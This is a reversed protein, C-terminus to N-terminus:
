LAVKKGDRVYIGRTTPSQIRRGQLDYLTGNLADGADVEDEIADGVYLRMLTRARAADSTAKGYIPLYFYLDESTYSATQAFMGEGVWLAPTVDTALHWDAANSKASSVAYFGAYNKHDVKTWISNPLSDALTQLGDYYLWLEKPLQMKYEVASATFNYDDDYAMEYPKYESVLYPIGFCNWGMDEAATLAGSGDTPENNHQTLTVLQATSLINGEADTLPHENYIYDRMTTGKGTFRYVTDHSCTFFVGQCAETAGDVDYIREWCPSNVSMIQYRASARTQGNYTYATTRVDPTLTLVRTTADYSYTAPGHSDDTAYNYDMDYPLAVISGAANINREVAVYAAKISQGHGYLSAGRKVLLYAPILDHAEAILNSNELLYVVSGEHPYYNGGYDLSDTNTFVTQGVTDNGVCWTEFAGRDLVDTTAKASRTNLVRPNALLDVDTAYNIFQVLNATAADLTMPNISDCRDINLSHETLQYNLNADSVAYNFKSLTNEDAPHGAYNFISYWLHSGQKNDAAEDYRCNGAADSTRGEVTLNVGYGTAGLNLVYNTSAVANDRFLVEYILANNVNAVNVNTAGSANNDAVLIHSVAVAPIVGDVSSTPNIDLVPSLVAGLPNNETVSSIAVGDIRTPVEASFTNKEGTTVSSLVTRKTSPGVLGPRNNVVTAVDEHLHPYLYEGTEEDITYRVSDTVNTPDISGFINVGSRLTIGDFQTDNDGKVFVYAENLDDATPANTASYIAALDIANQLNESNMTQGWGTGDRNETQTPDVYIVRLLPQPYEIAGVEISQPIVRPQDLFDLETTPIWALDFVQDAYITTDGKNVLRVSPRLSFDRQEIDGGESWDTAELIPNKFNPGTSINHNDLSLYTNWYNNVFATDTYDTGETIVVAGNVFRTYANRRFISDSAADRDSVYGDLAFQKGYVSADGDSPNNRWLVTNMINSHRPNYDAGSGTATQANRMAAALMEGTGDNSESEILTTLMGSNMLIWRGKNLAVTNNITRTNYAELPNGWNSHFVSNYILADGGYQGIYVASSSRDNLTSNDYHTGSNMVCCKTMVFKAPNDVVRYYLAYDTAVSSQVTYTDDTWYTCHVDASIDKSLAAYEDASISVNATAPSTAYVTYTTGESQYTYAQDEYRVATGHTGSLAQNNVFTIGDLQVPITTATRTSSSMAGNGLGEDDGKGYRQMADKVYFLYNWTDTTGDLRETSRIVSPYLETDYQDRLDKSYGGKITLSRVFYKDIDSQSYKLQGNTYAWDPFVVSENVDETDICFTRHGNYTYIPAYSGDTLRIEKRHGNRSSLLTEIARQLDSTPTEWTSGDPTGNEPKEITSVWLIDVADGESSAVLRCHPYEYVGLDIYTQNHSPAPDAAVRPLNEDTSASRMYIDNGLNMGRRNQENLYYAEFYAGNGNYKGDADTTWYTSYGEAGNNVIAQQLFCSGNDTLNNLRARSWDAAENYGSYGASTSPNCFNPGDLADNDSSLAINVNQTAYSDGSTAYNAVWHSYITKGIFENPSYAMQRYDATNAVTKGRGKEYASFWVAECYLSDLAGQSAPAKSLDTNYIGNADFSASNAFNICLQQAFPNASTIDDHIANGWFVNNAVLNYEDESADSTIDLGVNPNLTFIAPYLCAKNNVFDCNLVKMRSNYGGYLAAGTGGYILRSDSQPELTSGTARTVTKDLDASADEAENNSFITNYVELKNNFCVAGGNGPYDVTTTKTVGYDGASTSPVTWTVSESQSIAKNEAFLCDYIHTSLNVDIGAGYGAQNNIFQSNRIYLPIDRYAVASNLGQHYLDDDIGNIYDSCYWNGNGRLGAGRYYDYIGNDNLSGDVYDRAYGDSIHVGDIVVPQGIFRSSLGDAVYNSNVSVPKPLQGVGPAYPIISVVHYVGSNQLNVTNGSLNTQNQFEWPELINNLNQDELMRRYAMTDLPLQVLTVSDSFEADAAFHNLTDTSFRIANASLVTGYASSDAPNPQWYQGYLENCDFGGMLTVGEPILFTNALSYGYNGQMDRQPYYEGRAICIEFPLNNARNKWIDASRVESIYALADDLNHFPYAFSSGLLGYIYNDDDVSANASYDQMVQYADMNVDQTEAVFLRLFPHETDVVSSSPYARAGIDVYTRQKTGAPITDRSWKNYDREALGETEVLKAYNSYPMGTRCLASFITLGYYDVQTTDRAINKGNYVTSDTPSDIGFRNGQRNQIDVSINSTGSLRINQVASYAFPYWEFTSIGNADTPMDPSTQGAVNAQDPSDNQWLVTSNVRVNPEEADNSFWLGGGQQSGTNKVITTTYVHPMNADLTSASGQSTSNVMGDSMIIGDEVVYIGGGYDAENDVILCGSVLGKNMLALAGGYTASNNKVICNRVHAYDTVVAAGGYQNVNVMSAASGFSEGDAQGGVLFLGDLVARDTVGASSLTMGERVNGDVDFTEDTFTVVHYGRVTENLDSNDYQTQLFTPHYMVSREDDTFRDASVAGTAVDTVVYDDTYGGWVEVGRPVMISWVRVNDNESDTTRCPYYKFCTSESYSDLTADVGALKVIVRTGKNEYKYRGAADLVKQLKEACAANAQNFAQTTGFGYETVYYIATGPETILDPRIDDAGNYEYAGIDVRCDQIRKTYDMDYDPLVVPTVGDYDLGLSETGQNVCNRTEDKLTIRYDYQEKADAYDLVFPNVDAGDTSYYFKSDTFTVASYTGGNINTCADNSQIFCHDFKAPIGNSALWLLPQNDDMVISNYVTLHADEASATYVGISSDGGKNNVITNNYFNASEFFVGNGHNNNVNAGSLTNGTVVTNYMTGLIMYIGGGFNEQSCSSINDMVYCNIVKSGDCYIGGGRGKSTGSVHGLHNDRVVCNRLIVNEYMQVGAGGYRRGGGNGLVGIKWGYRMTFGDWEAGEYIVRSRHENQDDAITVQCERPHSLVCCDRKLSDREAASTHTQLITEYDKVQLNLAQNSASLPIGYSLQPHRENMGPNGERPFGGYVKVHNRIEYGLPNTYMGAAVWVSIEPTADTATFDYYTHTTTVTGSGSNSHSEQQTTQRVVFNASMTEHANNVAKQLGNIYTISDRTANTVPFIRWAKSYGNNIDYLGLNVSGGYINWGVNSNPTTAISWEKQTSNALALKWLTNGTSSDQLRVANGAATESLFYAYKGQTVDYIYYNGNDGAMFIFQDAEDIDTTSVLTMDTSSGLKIYGRNGNSSGNIVYLRPNDITSTVISSTADGAEVYPIVQSSLVYKANGNIANKWSSGDRQTGDAHATSLDETLTAIIKGSADYSYTNYDRVYYTTGYAPQTASSASFAGNELAGIDPLGGYDRPAHTTMDYGWSGDSLASAHAVGGTSAANVVPNMDSPTYDVSRGYYTVDGSESIGANKTSNVFRPYTDSSTSFNWTLITQGLANANGDNGSATDFMNHSGLYDGGGLFAAFALDGKDNTDEVECTMNAYFLSNTSTFSGHNVVAHGVNRVIDCHNQTMAAGQDLYITGGSVTGSIQSSANNRFICNEATLSGSEVYIASGAAATCDAITTNKIVASAGNAVVVGAGNQGYDANVTSAANGWRLEFGDLVSGTVGDFTVLHAVNSAYDGDTVKGSIITPNTVPNRLSTDTETLEAAYGGYVSVGSVMPITTGRLRGHASRSATYLSGEKVYITGTLGSQRFYTLADTLNDLPCDWSIGPTSYTSGSSRNPDVFMVAVGGITAHSPTEAKAAYAGLTCKPSFDNGLLDDTIYGASIDASATENIDLLQLGAYCLGSSSTPVWLCRNLYSNVSNLAIGAQDSVHGCTDFANTFMAYKELSSTSGSNENKDSLKSIGVKKTGSWDTYDARSIAVYTMIPKLDNSSTSRTAAYQLNNTNNASTQNGWLVSNYIRAHDRVYIGGSRGTVISNLTVGTGYTKNNVITLGNILGGKNMYIGGAEVTSTNQAVLCASAALAYQGNGAADASADYNFSLGGGSRGVNNVIACHTVLGAQDVAIGGGFGSTSNVGLSQCDHVYCNEVLGGGDLYLGGGGRSAECHYVECNRVIANGVMYAGGGFANHYINNIDSNYAYGDRIVVGDLVATDALATYHKTGSADTTFGNNAFWVVHYCNGFYSTNYRHKTENWAFIADSSLSGTFETRNKMYTGIETTITERKAIIEKATAGTENGAFGGYVSIGAPIQISMYLTSSSGSGSIAQTPKYTGADVFIYGRDGSEIKDKIDNIADQVNMKATSWSTGSNNYAGQSKSVYRIYDTAVAESLAAISLIATLLLRNPKMM